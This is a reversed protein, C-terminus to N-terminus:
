ITTVDKYSEKLYNNTLMNNAHVAEQNNMNPNNKRLHKMLKIQHGPLVGMQELENETITLIKELVVCASRILSSDPNPSSYLLM